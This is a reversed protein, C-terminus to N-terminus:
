VLDITEVFYEKSCCNCVCLLEVVVVGLVVGWDTREMPKGDGEFILEM